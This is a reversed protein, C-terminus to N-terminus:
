DCWCRRGLSLLRNNMTILISKLAPKGMVPLFKTERISFETEQRNSLIACFIHAPSTFAKIGHSQTTVTIDWWGRERKSAQTTFGLKDRQHNVAM